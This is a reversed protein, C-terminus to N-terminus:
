AEERQGEVQTVRLCQALPRGAMPEIRLLTTGTRGPRTNAWGAHSPDSGAVQMLISHAPNERNRHTAKRVTGRKRAHDRGPRAAKCAGLQRRM